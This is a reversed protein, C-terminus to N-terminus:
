WSVASYIEHHYRSPATGILRTDSFGAIGALTKWEPFPIPYPVWFSGKSINYEVLILRAGPGLYRRIERIVAEKQKVYHLANAMVIGNLKPLDLPRTFDAALFHVKRGPFMKHFAKKQQQLSRTDADVSYIEGAEGILEALALTFAGGGSGLDAWIGGPDPIADRILKVRESHNM